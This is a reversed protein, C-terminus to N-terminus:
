STTAPWQRSTRSAGAVHGLWRPTGPECAWVAPDPDDAWFAAFAARVAPSLERVGAIMCRPAGDDLTAWAPAGDWGFAPEQGAACVEGPRAALTPGWADQHFDVISRVGHREFLRM